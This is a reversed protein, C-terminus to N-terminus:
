FTLAMSTVILLDDKSTGSGRKPFVATQNAYGRLETRWLVRPQPVVDLGISAGNTNLGNPTNTPVIVQHPDQYRELRAVIAASKTMQYGGILTFGWWNANGSGNALEQVGYDVESLLLFREGITGKAGIGNYFRVQHNRATDSAEDGLYNYYSVTMRPTAAYDVRAGVSKASNFESINQWGNVVVFTTTVYSSPQWGFRVGSEYYPSYDAVLSRTYIPNDRSVFGEMGIHSFFIGGDVWTNDSIKVGAVAEQIIRALDPGSITGNRPEGSYNSQVSTGAQLALRGRVRPSELKVEAFALNVNFENHRAPQTTFARDFTPPRNFDFAYYSDVFAGFSIKLTTDPAAQAHLTLPTILVAAFAMASRSVPASGNHSRRLASLFRVIWHSTSYCCMMEIIAPM